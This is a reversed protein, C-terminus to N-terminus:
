VKLYFFYKGHFIYCDWSINYINQYKITELFGINFLLARNFEINEVPEVVFIGYNFAKQQSLFPHMNNLFIKLNNLRNRHPIIIAVNSIPDCSYNSLSIGDKLTISMNKVKNEIEIFKYVKEDIKNTYDKHIFLLITFLFNRLNVNIKEVRVFRSLM